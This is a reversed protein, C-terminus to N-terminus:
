ETEDSVERWAVSYTQIHRNISPILFNVSKEFEYNRIVKPAQALLQKTEETVNVQGKPTNSKVKYATLVNEGFIDYKVLKTGIIGAVITGTHIGVRM